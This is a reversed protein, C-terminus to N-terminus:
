EANSQHLFAAFSKGGLFFVFFLVSFCCSAVWQAVPCIVCAALPSFFVLFFRGFRAEWALCAWPWSTQCCAEARGWPCGILNSRSSTNVHCGETPLTFLIGLAPATKRSSTHKLYRAEQTSQDSISLVQQGSFHGVRCAELVSVGQM